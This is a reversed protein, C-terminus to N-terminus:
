WELRVGMRMSRQGTSDSPSTGNMGSVVGASALSTITTGPNSWNPHNFMNTGTLELRLAAREFIQFQKYLGASWTQSGPGKIIGRSATGYHGPTPPGFAELDFFRDVTRQDKPLNPNRYVNPRITVNASTSSATYATGVPDPGSWEPTLFQGSFQAWIGSLHWGGILADLWRNAGPFFRARKGFPLVYVFNGTIRHTPIYSEVGRDRRLDYSNEPSEYSIDRAWVWNVQYYLGRAWRRKAGVTLSNYQHTLGNSRYTVARFQPYRTENVKEIYPRTDPIRQNVDQAWVGQRQNTGIYAIRFGTNWREHEITFSYQMAFPIRLDARVAKPLSVTAPGATGAAPFVRPFIVVPANVPNTFSPENVVFPVGGVNIDGPVGDYYIGYGARFATRNSWPRWAVGIRPALNNRDTALLSGPLGAQGAEIVDLYGKPMLPSVKDLAGDPVVVKGTALDFASQYGHSETWNLNYDYRLGLNLTLHRNVKFDDTIFFGSTWRTRNIILHPYARSSTTPIGLLFDAYPYGAFRNSFSASGFLNGNAQGDEYMVHTMNFGGKINHRGRFWNLHEQFQMPFNKYGPVRWDQQTIGTLALGSFSVKFIGNIDPLNDVLGVLGLEEVLQKGM